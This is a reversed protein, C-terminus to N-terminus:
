EDSFRLTTEENIWCGIKYQQGEIVDIFVVEKSPFYKSYLKILKEAQKLVSGDIEKAKQFKDVALCYILHKSFYDESCQDVSKIYASGMMIYAEGITSDIEIISQALECCKRYDGAIYSRAAETLYSKIKLSDSNQSFLFSSAM